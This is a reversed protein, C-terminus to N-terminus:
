PKEEKKIYEFAGADPQEDRLNGDQDDKPSSAPNAQGIARSRSSLRFDYRLKETDVLRFHKEGVGATDTAQEWLTTEFRLSDTTQPKESRIVCHNFHYTPTENEPTEPLLIQNDAYGTILSNQVALRVLPTTANVALAVGRRADFPYFQALTCANMEVDGGELWVCDLLTNSILTNTLNLKSSRAWLGYGQCNHITCNELSLKPLSVDASDVVVGSQTSHIDTHRLVNHYSSSAFRLGQWQGPTLDYPLYDFLRDIRDGRLMVKKEATGMSLLTGHINLAADPHFYITTGAEITLTAASDVTLGGYIVLPQVSASIISDRQIHLNRKLQANWTWAQLPLRQEVGSDLTFLLADEVLQPGEQANLPTTIEVYVRASDGRRIEVDPSSYQSEAALYIGDVNVRFGSQQGNELRVSRCRLSAGSKNYIWFFRAASPVTSFVTDLSLTDTSFSLVHSPSSSFTEDDTCATMITAFVALVAIFTHKNM